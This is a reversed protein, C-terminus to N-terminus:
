KASDGQVPINAFSFKPRISFTAHTGFRSNATLTLANATPAFRGRFVFKGKLTICPQISIEPNDLPTALNNLIASATM